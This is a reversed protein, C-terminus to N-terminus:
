EQIDPLLINDMELTFSGTVGNVDVTYTGASLGYVDLSINKEFPQIVQICAGPARYTKITVLFANGERETTVEYIETCPDPLYGRAIVMVQLPFCELMLLEIEEVAALGFGSEATCCGVLFLISFLATLGLLLLKKSM